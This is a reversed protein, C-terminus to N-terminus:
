ADRETGAGKGIGGPKVAAATTMASAAAAMSARIPDLDLRSYIEAAQMSRHGLSKGIVVLSSGLSAQWSGMTRRLDHIRVDPIGAAVRIVDWGKKLDVVHPSGARGPFVYEPAAPPESQGAAAARQKQRRSELVALAPQVLPVRMSESNKMEAAPITWVGAELDLDAWRMREINGRRQGTFLALRVFDAADTNVGGSQLVVFLRALEPGTLFRERSSERFRSVGRAPNEGSWAAVTRAKSYIVSLLAIARNAAYRGHEAGLKSHWEVVEARTLHSLRRTGWHELYRAWDAKYNALTRPKCHAAVHRDLFLEYAVKLTLERTQERRQDAPNVGRAVSANLEAARRRAVDISTAPWAGIFLKEHRGNRGGIKRKLYFSRAGSPLICVALGPVKLDYVWFRRGEPSPELREVLSMTLTVRKPRRRPPGEHLRLVKNEVM